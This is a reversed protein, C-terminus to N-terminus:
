GIILNVRFSRLWNWGGCVGGDGDVVSGHCKRPDPGDVQIESASPRDRKPM